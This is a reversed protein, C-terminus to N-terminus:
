TPRVNFLKRFGFLYFIGGGLLLFQIAAAIIGAAYGWQSQISNREYAIFISGLITIATIGALLQWRVQWPVMKRGAYSVIINYFLYGALVAYASAGYGMRPVLYINLVASVVVALVAVILMVHTKGAFELPKHTYMSLQFAVYGATIVPMIVHGERFQPGLFWQAFDGSFLWIFGTLLIGAAIFWDIINGLWRGTQRRDGESGAKMLFPHAALIVPANLLGVAGTILVYNASYIGVEAAGRFWQIVYRDGTGLLAVALYWGIMPLGYAALRKIGSWFPRDMKLQLLSGFPLLKTERWMVPILIITGAVAGYVIWEAKPAVLLVFTLSFLLKLGTTLINYRSYERARMEAQLVVSLSTFLSSSIILGATPLYLDQWGPPQFLYVGYAMIVALIAEAGVILALGGAICEKLKNIEGQDQLSPLYRALSTQLWAAAAVSAFAAISLALSYRGYEFAAFIHTFVAASLLGLLAPLLSGPAYEMVKKLLSGYNLENHCDM